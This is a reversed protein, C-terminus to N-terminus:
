RLVRARAAFPATDSLYNWDLQRASFGVATTDANILVATLRSFRGPRPIRVSM